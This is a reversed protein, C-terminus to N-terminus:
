IIGVKIAKRVMEMTTATDFKVRLRKRYWKVTPLSLCVVEAIEASTRGDAIMQLIQKEKATLRIDM